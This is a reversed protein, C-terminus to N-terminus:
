LSALKFAAAGVGQVGPPVAVTARYTPDYNGDGTIGSRQGPWFDEPASDIVSARLRQAVAKDSPLGAAEPTGPIVKTPLRFDEFSM